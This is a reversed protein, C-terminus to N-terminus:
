ISKRMWVHPCGQEEDAAGSERFGLKRYFGAAQCQAHLAICSGGQEKVYQEAKRVVASGINKGRFEKRVALRGLIYAGMSEKWFVRCTAIPLKDKDFLVIHAAAADTEDFEDLFGQEEVFVKQRIEKACDPVGEYVATEMVFEKERNLSIAKEM